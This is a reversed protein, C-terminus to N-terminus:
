TCYVYAGALSEMLWAPWTMWGRVVMMKSHVSDDIM